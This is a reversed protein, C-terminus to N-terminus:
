RLRFVAEASGIARVTGDSANAVETPDACHFMKKRSMGPNNPTGLQATMTDRMSWGVVSRSFLDIVAAVYLWVKTAWIYTFDAVWKQNPGDATFQRDLLNGAIASRQGEDGPLGRRGPRAKLGLARM